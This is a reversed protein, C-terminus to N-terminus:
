THSQTRAISFPRWSDIRDIRVSVTAVDLRACLFFFLLSCFSSIRPPHLHTRIRAYASVLGARILTLTQHDNRAFCMASAVRGCGSFPRMALFRRQRATIACHIGTTEAISHADHQAHRCLFCWAEAISPMSSISPRVHDLLYARKAYKSLAGFCLPVCILNPFHSLLLPRTPMPPMCIRTRHTHTSKTSRMM